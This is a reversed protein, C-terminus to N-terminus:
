PQLSKHVYPLFDQSFQKVTSLPEDPSEGQHGEYTVLLLCSAQGGSRGHRTLLETYQQIWTSTTKKADAFIYLEVIYGGPPKAATVINARASRRDAGYVLDLTTQRVIKWGGAVLCHEPPHLGEWKNSYVLAATVAAGDARKYERQVVADRALPAVAKSVVELEMGQWAGFSLPLASMHIEAVDGGSSVRILYTDGVKLAIPLALAILWRWHQASM